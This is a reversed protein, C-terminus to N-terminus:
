NFKINQSYGNKVVSITTNLTSDIYSSNLEFLTQNDFDKGLWIGNKRNFYADIETEDLHSFNDEIDYLIYKFNNSNKSKSIIKEITLSEEKVLKKELKNYGLFIITFSEEKKENIYKDINTNIIDLVQVFNNDFYKVNEPVEIKFDNLSNIVIIKNNNVKNLLEILRPFFKRATTHSTSSIVNVLNDFNFYSIQATNTNIGVPVIDLGKVHPLLMDITVEEPVIPVRPARKLLYINLQNLVYNLNKEYLHDEFLLSTQFEYPVENVEIVGRGPNKKPIPAGEIFSSYDSQDLLNLVIRKPFNNDLFYGLSNISTSTIIFIIGVKACNRTMTAFDEDYLSEFNEKFADFDNIIVLTTPFTCKGNECEKYFDVTKDSYYNYRRNKEDRLMYFLFLIKDRDNLTLIDGVQPAKQFIKLKEAGLDIIYINLEESSHNIISSYIITSLLTTKGSGSSGAIFINGSSQLPLTVVGQEQQRPNDYEGIIPEIIYPKVELNYKKSVKNYYIKEPINDLWLKSFNINNNNAIDYLYKVINNLQEGYDKTEDKKVEENITKLVEGTNSIFVLDDNVKRTAIDSPVYKAGTWGSQALEFIEDNGVQLFFRGAEKIYAADDRKLMESSDETSQVKLCVRFRTNSWIQEDVVGSPKQTALILHVGLSRGIRAASVLEDMFDPQQAKLEAFEDAIIFLHSMPLSVKGERYFRQYKYIDITGEELKERTENFVIQRRQIESNISVLTRNMEAKDLNTITGVLHPLKLGTERNEFAGALGGGKYDILVFQVEYPHYNVAMSLIYTIIFESKGSGTTGAILGHPGHYKEHLDLEVLNDNEKVGIPAKLSTTPNNEAWRSMINFQDIKGIKYLDLFSLSSPIGTSSGVLNLPINSLIYTIKNMDINPLYNPQFAIQGQKSYDKNIIYCGSDTIDVLQIFDSPLDNMSNEFILCSFGRNIEDKSIKDIIQLDKALSYDDTVILYYENYNTYPSDSKRNAYEKELYSSLQLLEEHNSAFLRTEYKQNWNHPLSKFNEWLYENEKNTIIAIKLEKGTHYYILQLMISKIYDEKIKSHIVFPLIRNKILSVTIPVSELEFNTNAIEDVCEKLEDSIMTFGKKSSDITIDAPINGIGVTISLFDNDFIERNWIEKNKNYVNSVISDLPTNNFVIISKQKTVTEEIQKLIDELYAKYSEIRLKEAKIMQKKEWKEMAYPLLASGLLMLLFMVIELILTFKDNPDQLYSHVTSILTSASMIGMIFSPGYKFIFPMKQEEVKDPPDDITFNVHEVSAKLKPSHSFLEDAQFLKSNKDIESVPSLEPIEAQKIDLQKLGEITIETTIASVFMVTKMYIIFIGNIFINDGVSLRKNECVLSNIYVDNQHGVKELIAEGDNLTIVASLENLDKSCILHSSDNGISINSLNSINYANHNIIDPIVYAKCPKSVNNFKIDFSLGANLIVSTVNKNNKLVKLNTDSYLIWNGDENRITIIVGTYVRDFFLRTNISYINEKEKPIRYKHVEKEDLIILKM